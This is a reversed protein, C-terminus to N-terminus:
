DGPYAASSFHVALVEFSGDEPNDRAFAVVRFPLSRKGSALNVNAAMWTLGSEGISGQSVGGDVTLKIAKWRGLLKRAPALGLAQEAVETGFVSVGPDKYLARAMRTPSTLLAAIRADDTAGPMPVPRYDADALHAVAAKATVPMTLAAALVSLTGDEPHAVLLETVRYTTPADGGTWEVTLNASVVAGQGIGVIKVGSFRADAASSSVDRAFTARLMRAATDADAAVTTAGPLLVFPASSFTRMLGDIDHAALATRQVELLARARAVEPRPAGLATATALGVLLPVTVIHRIM